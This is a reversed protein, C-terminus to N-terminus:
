PKGFAYLHGTTRVYLRGDVVAPTAYIPEGLDNHSVVELKDGAKVVSVVGEGSSFYLHDGAVVPSSYYLGGAGLRGRYIVKGTAEDLATVIGGNTVAYVRGRYVLPVPVEPVARAESWAISDKPLEKEGGLRLALLGSPFPMPQSLMGAIMSWEAKSIEGDKNMDLMGYFRKFTIVAGETKGADVRRAIALDDPFEDKSLSGNGDKDYKKVLEDWAPIPDRLDPDSGWAGVFLMDGDVVPTGTGQSGVKIWWKRAGTKADFAAIEGPRHLLIQDKWAIPTAHGAFAGQTGGLKEDWLTKGTARDLAFIRSESDDRALVLADGLLLPSTGSGFNVNAAQQAHNWLPKGSHDYCFLGASGFYAYVREADAVITATAPSSVSHVKEIAGAPAVKRWLLRGDRRDYAAVELEKSTPDFGTLFIRDAWISPSSHGSKVAVSWIMNQKPGFEVPAGGEAIGSGGPGRYQPWQGIGAASVFAALPLILCFKKM